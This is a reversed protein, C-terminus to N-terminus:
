TMNEQIRAIPKALHRRASPPVEYWGETITRIHKKMELTRIRWACSRCKYGKENGASTMRGGCSPCKPSRRTWMPQLFNARFKELHLANRRWSGCITLKDEPLLKRVTHRFNKTPEFAFVRMGPGGVDPAFFFEVHGGCRTIPTGSVVGNIRYSYGEQPNGEYDLLHADTGQNTKWIKSIAPYESILLKASRMVWYPSDGRIGYLVPDKGHPVCVVTGATTDVTDWTHPFTATASSFFSEAVIERPTGFRRESRYALLEYTADPLVSSVAALAGILGRGYKYGRYLAEIKDLQYITEDITCFRQLAKYYFAPDPQENVVVVGPNTNECNFEAFKEVVKCAVNFVGTPTGNFIELCIAANGRTKWIVNPNLRILRSEGITYGARLLHEAIMAGLYTTCMGNPSDTDDIGLYM